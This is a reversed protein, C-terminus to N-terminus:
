LAILVQYAKSSILGTYKTALYVGIEAKALLYSNYADEPQLFCGLHRNGGVRPDRVCARYKGNPLLSVGTFGTTNRVSKSRKLFANIEKPLFCCTDPSYLDGDGLLDKDLQYLHGDMGILGYGFQSEAWDAFNDFVYWELCLVTNVYHPRVKKSRDSTCRQYMDFWTSYLPTMKSVGDVTVYSKRSNDVVCKVLSLMEFWVM